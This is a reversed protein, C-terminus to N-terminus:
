PLEFGHPAQSTKKLGTSAGVREEGAVNPDTTTESGNLYRHREGHVDLNVNAALTQLKAADEATAVNSCSAVAVLLLLQSFCM